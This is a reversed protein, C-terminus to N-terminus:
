TILHEAPQASLRPSLILTSLDRPRHIAGAHPTRRGSGASHTRSTGFVTIDHQIPTHRPPGAPFRDRPPGCEVRKAPESVRRWPVRWRTSHAPRLRRKSSPALGCGSRVASKWDAEPHVPRGLKRQADHRWAFGNGFRRDAGLGREAPISWPNRPYCPHLCKLTSKGKM